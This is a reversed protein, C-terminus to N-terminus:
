EEKKGMNGVHKDLSYIGGLAGIALAFDSGNFVPVKIFGLDLGSTILKFLCILCGYWFVSRVTSPQNSNPDLMMLGM